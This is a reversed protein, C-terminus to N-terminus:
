RIISGSSASQINPRNKNQPQQKGNQETGLENKYAPIGALTREYDNLWGLGVIDSIIAQNARAAKEPYHLKLKFMSNGNQLCNLLYKSQPSDVPAYAYISSLDAFQINFCMWRRGQYNSSSQEYNFAYNYYNSGQLKACMAVAQTPMSQCFQEGQMDSSANWADWSFRLSGSPLVFLQRLRKGPHEVNYSWLKAYKQASGISLGAITQPQMIQELQQQRSGDQMPDNILLDNRQVADASVFQELMKKVQQRAPAASIADQQQPALFADINLSTNDIAQQNKFAENGPFINASALYSSIRTQLHSSNTIFIAMIFCSFGAIYFGAIWRGTRSEAAQKRIWSDELQQQSSSRPRKSIEALAPAPAEAQQLAQLELASQDPDCSQKNFCFPCICIDAKRLKHSAFISHCVSCSFIHANKQEQSHKRRVTPCVPKLELEVQM